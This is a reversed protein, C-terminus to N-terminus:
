VSEYLAKYNVFRTFEPLAFRVKGHEAVELLRKDLLKRRVQNYNNAGFREAMKETTAEGGNEAIAIMIEKQKATLDRWILQYSYSTMDESFQRMVEENIEKSEQKSMIRGLSQFALAYGHSLKSLKVATQQNVGLNELYNNTIKLDDLPELDFMTARLIFTSEKQEQLASINEYLGAMIIAVPFGEKQLISYVSAFKVMNPNNSVEDVLILVKKGFKEVIGFLKRLQILEDEGAGELTVGVGIGLVSIDVGSIDKVNHVASLEERLNSILAKVLDMQISLEFVIWDSKEKMKRKTIEMLVSKGSGRVGAIKFAKSEGPTCLCHIIENVERDRSIYQEPVRGFSISYINEM